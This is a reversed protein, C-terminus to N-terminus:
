TGGFRRCGELSGWGGVMDGWGWTGDGAYGGDGGVVWSGGSVGGQVGCGGRVGLFKWLGKERGLEWPHEWMAMSGWVGGIGVAM